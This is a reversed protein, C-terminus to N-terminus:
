KEITDSDQDVKRRKEETPGDKHITEIFKECSGFHYLVHFYLSGTQTASLVKELYEQGWKAITKKAFETTKEKSIFKLESSFDHPGTILLKRSVTTPHTRMYELQDNFNIIFPMGACNYDTASMLQYKGERSNAMRQAGLEYDYTTWEDKVPLMPGM